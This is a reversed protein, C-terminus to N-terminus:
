PWIHIVSYGGILVQIQLPTNPTPRKSTPNSNVLSYEVRLRWALYDALLLDQPIGPYPCGVEGYTTLGHLYHQAGVIKTLSTIRYVNSSM